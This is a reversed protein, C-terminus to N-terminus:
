SWSPVQVGEDQRSCLTLIKISNSTYFMGDGPLVQNVYRQAFNSKSMDWYFDHLGRFRHTSRIVGVAEVHYNGINDVMKRRVIKPDDLRAYCSVGDDARPQGEDTLEVDGEWPGDTGRKRKRGTRKPVTIKLVVDHSRANHSM